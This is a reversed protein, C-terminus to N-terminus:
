HDINLKYQAITVAEGNGPVKADSRIQLLLASGGKATGVGISAYGQSMATGSGQNVIVGDRVVAVTGNIQKSASCSTSGDNCVNMVVSSKWTTPTYNYADSQGACPGVPLYFSVLASGGCLKQLGKGTATTPDLLTKWNLRNAFTTNLDFMADPVDGGWSAPWGRNFIHDALIAEPIPRLLESAEFAQEHRATATTMRMELLTSKMVVLAVLTLMVLFVLGVFLAVGSQRRFRGRYYKGSLMAYKGHSASHIPMVSM